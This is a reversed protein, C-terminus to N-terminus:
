IISGRNVLFVAALLCTLLLIHAYSNGSIRVIKKRSVYIADILLVTILLIASGATINKSLSLLDYKPKIRVVADGTTASLYSKPNPTTKLNSLVPAEKVELAPPITVVTNEIPPAEEVVPEQVPNSQPVSTEPPNNTLPASGPERTGFMQVVLTTEEGELRGNVVAFGVEQYKPQLLNEKHTPSNMWADVVGGADQFDKALNEGAYVYRYGAGLIFDWPTKGAPSVHAWYNNGFMDSAKGAAAQNLQDNLTLSTLGNEARKQNTIELLRQVSIDTAFGLIDPRIKAFISLSSEILILAIIVLSIGSPHLIRAKHNNTEHPLFLHRLYKLIKV